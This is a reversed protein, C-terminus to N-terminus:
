IPPELLYILRYGGSAWLTEFLPWPTVYQKGWTNHTITGTLKITEGKYKIEKEASLDVEVVTTAHPFNGTHDNIFVMVPNLNWYYLERRQSPSIWKEQIDWPRIARNLFKKAEQPTPKRNYFKLWLDWVYGGRYNPMQIIPCASESKVEDFQQDNLARLINKDTVGGERAIDTFRIYGTPDKPCLDCQMCFVNAIATPGCAGLGLEGGQWPLGGPQVYSISGDPCERKLDSEDDPNESTCEKVESYKDLIEFFGVPISILSAFRVNHDFAQTNSTFAFLGSIALSVM